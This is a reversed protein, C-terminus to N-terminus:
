IHYQSHVTSATMSLGAQKLNKGPGGVFKALIGPSYLAVTVPNRWFILCSLVEEQNDFEM